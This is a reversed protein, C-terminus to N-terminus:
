FIVIEFLFCLVTLLALHRMRIYQMPAIGVVLGGVTMILLSATFGGVGWGDKWVLSAICLVILFIGVQKAQVPHAQLWKEVSGTRSLKAKQSTNYLAFFGLFCCAVILTYM